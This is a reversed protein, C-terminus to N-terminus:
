VIRKTPLTLHTYSVPTFYRGARRCSSSTQNTEYTSIEYLLAESLDYEHAVEARKRKQFEMIATAAFATCSAVYGQDKVKSMQDRWSFSPPIEKPLGIFIIRELESMRYEQM